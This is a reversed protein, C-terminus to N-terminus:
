LYVSLQFVLCAIVFTSLTITFNYPCFCHPPRPESELLFSSTCDVHAFFTVYRESSSYLTDFGHSLSRSSKVIGKLTLLVPYNGIFGIMNKGYFVIMTSLCRESLETAEDHVVNM